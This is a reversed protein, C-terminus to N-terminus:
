KVKKGKKKDKNKKKNKDKKDKKKEKKKDAVDDEHMLFCADPAQYEDFAYIEMDFEDRYPVMSAFALNASNIVEEFKIKGDNVLEFDSSRFLVRMSIPLEEADVSSMISAIFNNFAFIFAFVNFNDNNDITVISLLNKDREFISTGIDPTEQCDIDNEQLYRMLQDSNGFRVIVTYNNNGPLNSVMDEFTDNEYTVKVRSVSGPIFIWSDVVNSIQNVEEKITTAVATEKTTKKGKQNAMITRGRKKKNLVLM